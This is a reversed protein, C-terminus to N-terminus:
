WCQTALYILKTAAPPTAVCANDVAAPRRKNTIDLAIDCSKIFFVNIGLIFSLCSNNNALNAALM